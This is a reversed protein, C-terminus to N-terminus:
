RPMKPITKTRVTDINEQVEMTVQLFYKTIDEKIKQYITHEDVTYSNKDWGKAAENMKEIDITM